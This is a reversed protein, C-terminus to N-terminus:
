VGRRPTHPAAAGPRWSLWGRLDVATFVGSWLWVSSLELHVGLVAWTASGAVRLLWGWRHRRGVAWTGALLSLYGAHGVADLLSM